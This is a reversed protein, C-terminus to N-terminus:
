VLRKVQRPLEMGKSLFIGKWFDTEREEFGTEAM